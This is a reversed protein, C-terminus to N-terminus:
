TCQISPEARSDNIYWDDIFDIITAYKTYPMFRGGSGISGFQWKSRTDYAEHAGALADGILVIGALSAATQKDFVGLPDHLDYIMYRSQGICGCGIVEFFSVLHAPLDPFRKKLQKLQKATLPDLTTDAYRAKLAAKMKRLRRIM